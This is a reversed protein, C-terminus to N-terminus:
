YVSYETICSNGWEQKWCKFIESNPNATIEFRPFGIVVDYDQKINDIGIKGLSFGVHYKGPSYSMKHIKLNIIKETNKKFELTKDTLLFAVIQGSSNYIAFGMVVEKVNIFSKVNISFCIGENFNLIKDENLISIKQINLKEGMGPSRFPETSKTNEETEGIYRLITSSIDGFYEVTGNNLFLGRTCLASVAGINHSVFLITRGHGAVDKMKGLCKKQFEADGVALVEDVILIEPEL